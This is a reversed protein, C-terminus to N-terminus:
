RNAARSAEVVVGVAVRKSLFQSHRRSSLSRSPLCTTSNAKRFPEASRDVVDEAGAEEGIWLAGEGEDEEERRTSEGRCPLNDKTKDTIEIPSCANMPHCANTPSIKTAIMAITSSDGGRTTRNGTHGQKKRNIMLKRVIARGAISDARDKGRNKNSADQHDKTPCQRKNGIMKAKTNTKSDRSGPNEPLRPHFALPHSDQSTTNKSSRISRGATIKISKHTTLRRNGISEKPLAATIPIIQNNPHNHTTPISDGERRPTNPQKSNKSTSTTTTPCTAELHTTTIRAHSILRGQSGARTASPRWLLIWKNNFQILILGLGV